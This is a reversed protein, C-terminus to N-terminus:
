SEAILDNEDIEREIKMASHTPDARKKIIPLGGLRRLKAM